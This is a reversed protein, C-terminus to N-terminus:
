STWWFLSPFGSKAYKVKSCKLFMTRLRQLGELDPDQESDSQNVWRRAAGKEALFWNKMRKDSASSTSPTAQNCNLILPASVLQGHVPRNLGVTSPNKKKQTVLENMQMLLVINEEKFISGFAQSSHLKREMLHCEIKNIDLWPPFSKFARCSHTLFFVVFFVFGHHPM